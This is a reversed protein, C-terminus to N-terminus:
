PQPIQQAATALDAKSISHGAHHAVSIVTNLYSEKVRSLKLRLHADQEIDHIFAHAKDMDGGDTDSPSFWHLPNLVRHAVNEIKSVVQDLLGLKKLIGRIRRKPVDFIEELIDHVKQKELQFDKQVTSLVTHADEEVTKLIRVIAAVEMHWDHKLTRSIDLLSFEAQHLAKVIDEIEIQFSNSLGQSIERAQFGADKLVTTIQTLDDQGDAKLRQILQEITALLGDHLPSIHTSM